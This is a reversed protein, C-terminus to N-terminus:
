VNEVEVNNRLNRTYITDVVYRITIRRADVGVSLDTLQIVGTTGLIMARCRLVIEQKTNKTGLLRFWDIGFGMDFFCDNLFSYLRTNVNLAIADSASVFSQKGKGFQWNRNSDLSRFIM